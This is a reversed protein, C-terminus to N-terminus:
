AIRGMDTGPHIGVSPPNRSFAMVVVWGKGRWGRLGWNKGKGQPQSEVQPRSPSDRKSLGQLVGGRREGVDPIPLSHSGPTGWTQTNGDTPGGEDAGDGHPHSGM